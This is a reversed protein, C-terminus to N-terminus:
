KRTGHLVRSIYDISLKEKKRTTLQLQAPCDLISEARTVSELRVRANNLMTERERRERERERERERGGEKKRKRAHVFVFVLCLSPM